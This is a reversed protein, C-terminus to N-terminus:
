IKKLLEKEKRKLAAYLMEKQSELEKELEKRIEKVKKMCRMNNCYDIKKRMLILTNIDLDEKGCIDCKVKIM